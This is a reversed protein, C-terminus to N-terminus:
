LSRYLIGPQAVQLTDQISNCDAQAKAYEQMSQLANPIKGLSHDWAQRSQLQAPDVKVQVDFVAWSYFSLM